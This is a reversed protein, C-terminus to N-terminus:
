TTMTSAPIAIASGSIQGKLVFVAVPGPNITQGKDITQVGYVREGQFNIFLEGAGWADSTEHCVVSLINLTPM